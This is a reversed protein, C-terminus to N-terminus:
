VDGDDKIYSELKKLIAETQHRPLENFLRIFRRTMITPSRFGTEWQSILKSNTIGLLHAAETQSFGFIKRFKIMEGFSM